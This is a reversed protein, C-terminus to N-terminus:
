CVSYTELYYIFPVIHIKEDMKCLLYDLSIRTNKSGVNLFLNTEVNKQDHM